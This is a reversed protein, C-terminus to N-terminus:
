RNGKRGEGYGKLYRHTETSLDKPGTSQGVLDSMQELISGPPFEELSREVAERLIESKSTGRRAAVESIRCFLEDDVKVTVTPM